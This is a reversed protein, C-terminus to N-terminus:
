SNTTKTKKHRWKKFKVHEGHKTESLTYEAILSKVQKKPLSEDKDLGVVLHM